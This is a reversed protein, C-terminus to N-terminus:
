NSVVSIQSCSQQRPGKSGKRSIYTGKRKEAKWKGMKKKKGENLGRSHRSHRAFMISRYWKSYLAKQIMSKRFWIQAWILVAWRSSHEGLYLINGKMERMNKREMKRRNTSSSRRKWRICAPSPGSDVTPISNPDRSALDMTQTIQEMLPLIFASEMTRQAGATTDSM